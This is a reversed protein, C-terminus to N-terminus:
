EEYSRIDPKATDLMFRGEETLIASSMTKIGGSRRCRKLPFCQNRPVGAVVANPAILLLLITRRV